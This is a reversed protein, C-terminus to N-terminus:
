LDVTGHKFSGGQGDKGSNGKIGLRGQAPFKKLDKAPLSLANKGSLGPEGGEGPTGGHGGNNEYDWFEPAQGGKALYLRIKGGNGGQGGNGGTGGDGGLGGFGGKGDVGPKGDAEYSKYGIYTKGKGGAGGKGSKGGDGAQGGNGGRGGKGGHGGEASIFITSEPAFSHILFGMDGSHAGNKGTTGLVGNLGPSGNEGFSGNKGDTAKRFTAREINIAILSNKGKEGDIGNAGNKSKERLKDQPLADEGKTGRTNIFRLDGKALEHIRMHLTSSVGLESHPSFTLYDCNIKVVKPKLNYINEKPHKINVVGTIQLEEGKECIYESIQLNKDEWL